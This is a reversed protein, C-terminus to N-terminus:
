ALLFRPVVLVISPFCVGSGRVQVEVEVILFDIVLGRAEEAGLTKVYVAFSGIHGGLDLWCRLSM